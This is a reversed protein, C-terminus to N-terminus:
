IKFLPSKTKFLPPEDIPTELPPPEVIPTEIPLAESAYRDDRWSPLHPEVFALPEISMSMVLLPISAMSRKLNDFFKFKFSFGGVLHFM